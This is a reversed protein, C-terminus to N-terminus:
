SKEPLKSFKGRYREFTSSKRINQATRQEISVFNEQITSHHHFFSFGDLDQESMWNEINRKKLSFPILQHTYFKDFLIFAWFYLNKFLWANDFFTVFTQKKSVSKNVEIFNFIKVNVEWVIQLLKIFIGNWAIIFIGLFPILYSIRGYGVTVDPMGIYWLTKILEILEFLVESM